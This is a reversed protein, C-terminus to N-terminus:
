AISYSGNVQTFWGKTVFVIFMNRPPFIGWFVCTSFKLFHIKISKLQQKACVGQVYAQERASYRMSIIWYKLRNLNCSQFTSNNRVYTQGVAQTQAGAPSISWKSTKASITPTLRFSDFVTETMHCSTLYYLPVQFLRFTINVSLIWPRKWFMPSTMNSLALQLRTWVTRPM